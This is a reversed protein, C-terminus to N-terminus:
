ANNMVIPWVTSRAKVGVIGLTRHQERDTVPFVTGAARGAHDPVIAYQIKMNKAPTGNHHLTIEVPLLEDPFVSVATDRPHIADAGQRRILFYRRWTAPPELQERM